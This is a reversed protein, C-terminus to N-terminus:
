DQSRRAFAIPTYQHPDHFGLARGQLYVSPSFMRAIELLHKKEVEDEIQEKITLLEKVEGAYDLRAAKRSDMFLKFSTGISVVGAFAAPVILVLLVFVALLSKM